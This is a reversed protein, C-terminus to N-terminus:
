GSPTDATTTAPQKAAWAVSTRSPAPNKNSGGAHTVPCGPVFTGMESLDPVGAAYGRIKGTDLAYTPRRRSPLVALLRARVHLAGAAVRRVRASPEAYRLARLLPEDMLARSFLRVANAAPAPYFSALLNLTSDAVRRAGQDYDFHDREYDDMLAAFDAYTEPLDKIAMRKGLARYYNVSARVEHDTLARWGFDDIWRKPVVVFTALVYRMDDNSIDYMAHMQNIRRTASRGEASDFGHVLPAELLLNTDDYRKQCQGTFQGTEDLLRGISPVAYTRFLAFSLSQTFDWPFEYLALTRYIEEFDTEPDLKAMRDRWLTRAM